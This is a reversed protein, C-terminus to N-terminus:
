PEHKKTYKDKGGGWEGKGRLIAIVAVRLGLTFNLFIGNKFDSFQPRLQLQPIM